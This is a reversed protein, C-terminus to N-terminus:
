PLNNVDNVDENFVEANVNEDVERGVREAEDLYTLKATPLSGGEQQKIFDM